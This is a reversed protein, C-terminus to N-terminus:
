SHKRNYGLDNVTSEETVWQVTKGDTLYDIVRPQYQGEYGLTKLAIRVLIDQLHDQTNIIESSAYTGNEIEFYGKHIPANRLQSLFGTWSKRENDSFGSYHKEMIIADPMKYWKLLDMVKIGFDGDTNSANEVKSGIKHLSASAEILNDKKAQRSLKELKNKAESLIAKVNHQYTEPMYTILNQRGFGLEESLGEITRSIITMVNEFNRFYSSLDV